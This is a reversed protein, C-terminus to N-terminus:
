LPHFGAASISFGRAANAGIHFLQEPAASRWDSLKWKVFHLYPFQRAGTKDNTLRGDRWYWTSPYDFGGDCWPVRYFSTSYTENFEASRMYPNRRYVWRRLWGPWSRHRLFVHSFRREDFAAHCGRMLAPWEAVQRFANRMLENNALLTLHGSIRRGHCSLLQYRELRRPNFYARLNGYIVDIDGFGWFDFARIDRAHIAGYAPRLDCLKYPHPLDCEIGLAEGALHKYQDFSLERFAVNAPAGAPVGCDTFFLWNISPNRACSLLFADIWFPWRGFFPILIVISKM